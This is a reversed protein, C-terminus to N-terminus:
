REVTGTSAFDDVIADGDHMIKKRYRDQPVPEDDLNMAATLHIPLRPLIDKTRRLILGVRFIRRDNAMYRCSFCSSYQVKPNSHLLPANM